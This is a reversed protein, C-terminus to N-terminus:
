EVPPVGADPRWSEVEVTEVAEVMELADEITLTWGIAAGKQMLKVAELFRVSAIAKGLQEVSLDAFRGEALAKGVQETPLYARPKDPTDIPESM